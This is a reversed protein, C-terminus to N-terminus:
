LRAMATLVSGYVGAGVVILDTLPIGVLAPGGAGCVAAHSPCGPGPQAALHHVLPDHRSEKLSACGASLALPGPAIRGRLWRCWWRTAAKAPCGSWTSSTTSSGRAPTSGGQSCRGRRGLSPRM